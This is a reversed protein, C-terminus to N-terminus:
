SARKLVAVEKRLRAGLRDREIELDYHMHLNLWFEDSTGVRTCLTAWPLARGTTAAAATPRSRSRGFRADHGRAAKNPRGARTYHPASGAPAAPTRPRGAAQRGDSPQGSSGM